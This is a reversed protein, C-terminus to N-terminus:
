SRHTSGPAHYGVHYNSQMRSLLPGTTGDNWGALFLTGCLTLFQIRGAWKSVKPPVDLKVPSAKGISTGTSIDPVNKETVGLQALEIEDAKDFSKRSRDPPHPSRELLSIPGASAARSDRTETYVQTLSM